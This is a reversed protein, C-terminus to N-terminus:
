EMMDLEKGGWLSYGALSRQGHFEGSLFVATPLWERKWPFRGLGSTSGLDGVNCASEYGGSGGRFGWCPCYLNM